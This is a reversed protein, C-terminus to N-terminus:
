LLLPHSRRHLASLRTPVKSTVIDLFEDWELTGNGDTDHKAIIRAIREQTPDLGLEKFVKELEEASISGDSNEDFRNFVQRLEALEELGLAGPALAM